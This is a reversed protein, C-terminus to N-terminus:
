RRTSMLAFMAGQPDTGNLIWGGGPVQHPGMLITGGRQRIREAAADIADVTFYYLWFPSPMIAAKTVMGGLPIGASEFIQYTGMNGLDHTEGATWGFLKSYFNFATAHDAAHLERWGIHGPGPNVQAVPPETTGHFLIFVAGQPDAVVSFRGIGPIDTPPRLVSGGAEAVLAATGDVDRVGVHGLWMPHDGAAPSPPMGMMGGVMEEPSAFLLLYTTGPMRADQIQWGLVSSYFAQAAPLDSTMLDYWVFNARRTSSSTQSSPQVETQPM